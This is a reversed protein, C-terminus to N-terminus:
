VELKYLNYKDFRKVIEDSAQNIFDLIREYTIYKPSAFERKNDFWNWTIWGKSDTFEKETLFDKIELEKANWLTDKPNNKFNYEQSLRNDINAIDSSIILFYDRDSQKINLKEMEATFEPRVTKLFVEDTIVHSLYGCYLDFDASGKICYKKAFEDLRKQFVDLNEKKLFDHDQIDDRLHTHKKMARVFNERSHICDPAINGNFFLPVSSLQSGLMQSVKDAIAIHTISGAM